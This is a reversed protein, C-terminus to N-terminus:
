LLMEPQKVTAPGRRVPATEQVCLGLSATAVALAAMIWLTAHMGFADAAFGACVPGLTGGIAEGIGMGIGLVTGVLEPRVSEAPITGMVIPFIGTIASGAAFMVFSTWLPGPLYGTALPLLAGLLAGTVVVPRRGLLDSSGPILISYAVSAIGFTAMFWSMTTRDVGDHTLLVPAFTVFIMVFAVLLASMVACIWVNRSELLGRIVPRATPTRTVPTEKLWRMLAAASVLGPVGAVYFASRWGYHNALAVLLLPSLFGGLLNSGFNQIVGMAVGRRSPEVTSVIVAHSIPTVGGEAVGMLLRTLLLVVFSEAVGSLFSMCAFVVTCFVLLPKRRGWADSVRGILLCSLAWSLSLASTFAGVQTNNLHLDPQVFPMLFNLAYRDFFVIGINLSLLVVVWRQYAATPQGGALPSPTM